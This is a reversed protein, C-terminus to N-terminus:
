QTPTPKLVTLGQSHVQRHCNPHLMVLNSWIDSGGKAKELFHHVHWGSEKSIAQLCVLCKGNQSRWLHLLTKRGQLTQTMKRKLREEFYIEWVPDYPNAEAKIKTHRKIPTKSALSLRSLRKENEKTTSEVYCAFVWNEAGVKHFYRNKVWFASKNSHRRTAWHWLMQWIRYDIIVFTKKSAGHRHYNAWGRIVPNLSKILDAQNSQRHLKILRRVKALFSQINAKSPKNILKGRYKRINQGLFDYGESIHTVKTKTQSLRLGREKLFAEILPKVEQELIEKSVGTVVFDDAYRVINVKPNFTKGKVVRRKFHKSLLGELGDLTMNTLTPSIPSGQPVGESTPHFSGKDIFGAKLWKKLITRDMPVHNELWIHSIEDFCSKIDGELVWQASNEQCLATRCQEIADATGREPRFGYSNKDATTEAIPELGLLHLSKMARDVMCPIGLPRRKGKAKPIYVRRVPKPQYGRRKLRVIAKFKAKPTSWKEGDVGATRKGQSETVRRIALVKGYFSHTLLWQLAKAKNWRGERIAKAIRM